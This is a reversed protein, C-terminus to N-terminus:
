ITMTMPYAKKKRLSCNLLGYIHRHTKRARTLSHVALILPFSSILHSSRVNSARTEIYVIFSALHMMIMIEGITGASSKGLLPLKGSVRRADPVM